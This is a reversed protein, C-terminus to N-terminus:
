SAEENKARGAKKDYGLAGTWSHYWGYLATGV